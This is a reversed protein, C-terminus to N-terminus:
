DRGDLLSLPHQRLEVKGVATGLIVPVDHDHWFSAARLFLSEPAGRESLFKKSLPPRQYPLYPEDGIMSITGAFGDQRLSTALQAAAQGAGIIVVDEDM